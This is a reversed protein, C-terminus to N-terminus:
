RYMIARSTDQQQQQHEVIIDDGGTAELMARRMSIVEQEIATKLHEDRMRREVREQELKARLVRVKAIADEIRQPDSQMKAEQELKQRVVEFAGHRSAREEHYRRRATGAVDEFSRFMVGERKESKNTEAYVQPTIEQTLTNYPADLHERISQPAVVHIQRAVDSEIQSLRTQLQMWHKSGLSAPSFRTEQEVALREAAQTMPESIHTQLHSCNQLDRDMSINALNAQMLALRRELSMMHKQQNQRRKITKDHLEKFDTTFIGDRPSKPPQTVEEVTTSTNIKRRLFRSTNSSQPTSRFNSTPRQRNSITERLPPSGERKDTFPGEDVSENVTEVRYSHEVVPIPEEEGPFPDTMMMSVEARNNHAAAVEQYDVSYSPHDQHIYSDGGIGPSPQPQPQGRAHSRTPAM